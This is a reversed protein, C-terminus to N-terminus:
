HYWGLIPKGLRMLICVSYLFMKDRDNEEEQQLGVPCSYYDHHTYDSKFFNILNIYFQEHPQVHDNPTKRSLELFYIIFDALDGAVM